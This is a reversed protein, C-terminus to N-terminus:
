TNNVYLQILRTCTKFVSVDGSAQTGNFQFYQINTLSGLNNISGSINPCYQLGILTANRLTRLSNIDGSVDSNYLRVEKLDTLNTLVSIDGYINLHIGPGNSGNLAIDNLKTCNAFASIDGSIDTFYGEIM